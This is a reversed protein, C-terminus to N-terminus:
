NMKFCLQINAWEIKQSMFHHCLLIWTNLMVQLLIIDCYFNISKMFFFRYKRFIQWVSNIWSSAPHCHSNRQIIIKENQVVIEVKCNTSKKQSCKWTAKSSDSVRKNSYSHGLDDHLVITNRSYGYSPTVPPDLYTVDEKSLSETTLFYNTISTYDTFM